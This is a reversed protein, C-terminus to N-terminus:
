RGLGVDISRGRRNLSQRMDGAIVQALTRGDVNLYVPQAASLSQGAQTMRMTTGSMRPSLNLEGAIRGAGTVAAQLSRTLGIEFGQGAYEGMQMTVRSPSQIQLASRMASVAANAVNRATQVVAARRGSLGLRFGEAMQVGADYAGGGEMALRAAAALEMAASTVAEQQGRIGAAINGFAQGVNLGGPLAPLRIRGGGLATAARRELNELTRVFESDDGVIRIKVGDAM